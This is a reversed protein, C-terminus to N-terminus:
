RPRQAWDLADIAWEWVKSCHSDDFDTLEDIWYACVAGYLQGRASVPMHLSSTMGTEGLKLDSDPALPLLEGQRVFMYESSRVNGLSWPYWSLPIPKLENPTPESDVGYQTWFAELTALGADASFLDVRQANLVFGCRGLREAIEIGSSRHLPRPEETTNLWEAQDM